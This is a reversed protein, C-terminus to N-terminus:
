EGTLMVDQNSDPYEIFIYPLSASNFSIETNALCPLFFSMELLNVFSFILELIETPLGLLNTVKTHDLTGDENAVHYQGKNNIGNSILNTQLFNDPNNLWKKCKQDITYKTLEEFIIAQKIHKNTIDYSNNANNTILACTLLKDTLSKLIYPIDKKVYYIDQSDVHDITQLKVVETKNNNHEIFFSFLDSIIHYIDKHGLKQWIEYIKMVDALNCKIDRLISLVDETDTTEESCLFHFTKNINFLIHDQYKSTVQLGLKAIAQVISIDDKLIGRELIDTIYKEYILIQELDLKEIIFKAIEPQQMTILFGIIRGDILQNNLNFLTKVSEYQSGHIAAHMSTAGNNTQIDILNPQLDYIIKIIEINGYYAATHLATSGDNARVDILNSNLKYLIKIVEIQNHCIAHNLITFGESTKYTILRNNKAHLNQISTVDGCEAATYFEKLQRQWTESSSTAKKDDEIIIEERKRKM